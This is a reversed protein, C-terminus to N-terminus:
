ETGTRLELMVDALPRTRGAAVSAEGALMRELSFGLRDGPAPNLIDMRLPKGPEAALMPETKYVIDDCLDRATKSFFTSAVYRLVEAEAPTFDFEAQKSTPFLEYGIYQGCPMEHETAFGHMTLEGTASFFGGSDFPGHQDFCYVFSSVPRGLYKRAEVDALYAFKALKTRGIGPAVQLLYRLVQANRSLNVIPMGGDRLM